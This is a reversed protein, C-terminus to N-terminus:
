AGMTFILPQHAGRGPARRRSSRRPRRRLLGKKALARAQKLGTGCSPRMSTRATSDSGCVQAETGSSLFLGRHLDHSIRRGHEGNLLTRLPPQGNQRQRHGDIAFRPKFVLVDGGLLEQRLHARARQGLACGRRRREREGCVIGVLVHHVDRHGVAQGARVLHGAAQAFLRAMGLAHVHHVGLREADGMARDRQSRGMHGFAPQARALEEAFQALHDSRRARIEDGFIEVVKAAPAAQRREGGREGM